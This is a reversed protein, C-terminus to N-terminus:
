PGSTAKMTKKASMASMAGVTAMSPSAAPELAVPV